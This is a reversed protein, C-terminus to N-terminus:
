RSPNPPDAIDNNAPETVKKYIFGGAVGAIIATGTVKLVLPVKRIVSFQQSFIVEDQNETDVVKLRYNDAPKISGPVKMPYNGVNAINPFVFEKVDGRYLEFNMVNDERGGSWTIEYTKTRKLVKFDDFGDLTIFPIYQQGKLEIAIEGAFDPDLEDGAHWIVMKNGGVPINVGIDGEVNEVPQIYDDLSLYLKLTYRRETQDDVLDYHIVVDYQDNLEVKTIKVEQATLNKLCSFFLFLLLILLKTAYRM